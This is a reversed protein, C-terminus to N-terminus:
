QKLKAVEKLIRKRHSKKDVGIDDLEDGGFGGDLLEAGDIANNLFGPTYEAFAPGISALWDAVDATSSASTLAAGEAKAQAVAGRGARAAAALLTSPPIQSAIRPGQVRGPLYEQFETRSGWGAFEAARWIEMLLSPFRSLFYSAIGGDAVFAANAASDTGVGTDASAGTGSHHRHQHANRMFRLLHPLSLPDYHTRHKSSSTYEDWVVADLLQKWGGVSTKNRGIGAGLLTGIASTGKAVEDTNGVACLFAFRKNSDWFYPHWLL